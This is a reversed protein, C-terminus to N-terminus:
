GGKKKLVIDYILGFSKNFKFGYNKPIKEIAKGAGLFLNGWIKNLM